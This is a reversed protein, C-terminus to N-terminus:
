QLAGSKTRVADSVGPLPVSRDGITRDGIIGNTVQLRPLIQMVLTGLTINIARKNRRRIHNPLTVGVDAFGARTQHYVGQSRHRFINLQDTRM